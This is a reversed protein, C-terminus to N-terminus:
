TMFLMVLLFVGSVMVAEHLLPLPDALEVPRYRGLYQFHLMVQSMAKSLVSDLVRKLLFGLYLVVGIGLVLSLFGSWLRAAGWRIVGVHAGVRLLLVLACFLLVAYVYEEFVLPIIVDSSFSQVVRTIL